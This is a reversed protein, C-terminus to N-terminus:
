EHRSQIVHSVSATARCALERVRPEEFGQYSDVPLTLACGVCTELRGTRDVRADRSGVRGDRSTVCVGEDGLQGGGDLPAHALAEGDHQGGPLVRVVGDRRPAGEDGGVV